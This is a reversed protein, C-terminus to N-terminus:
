LMFELWLKKVINQVQNKMMLTLLVKMLLSKQGWLRNLKELRYYHYFLYVELSLIDFVRVEEEIQEMQQYSQHYMEQESAALQEALTQDLKAQNESDM